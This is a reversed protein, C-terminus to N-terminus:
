EFRNLIPFLSSYLNMSSFFLSHFIEHYLGRLFVIQKPKLKRHLMPHITLEYIYIFILSFNTILCSVICPVVSKQVTSINTLLFCPYTPPNRPSLLVSTGRCHLSDGLPILCLNDTQLRSKLKTFSESKLKTSSESQIYMWSNHQVEIQESQVEAFGESQIETTWITGGENMIGERSMPWMTWVTGAPNLKYLTQAKNTGITHVHNMNQSWPESQVVTTWFIGEHNLNYKFLESKGENNLNDKLPEFQIKM